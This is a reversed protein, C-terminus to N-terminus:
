PLKNASIVKVARFGMGQVRFFPFTTHVLYGLSSKCLYKVSLKHM